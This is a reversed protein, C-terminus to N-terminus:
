GDHLEAGLTKMVKVAPSNLRNIKEESDLSILRGGVSICSTSIVEGDKSIALNATGGGIDCSLITKNLDASRAMAGSGMAALLSEFNPGATAAVFKGADNSLAQAIQPANSKKATEGTVIVAGTKIDSPQIGAKKSEKKLFTTLTDIDISNGNLLPTSIIEGEYVIKRDQIVFKQTPSHEDKVLVLKSFALHSTSSGIDIGVSLLEVRKIEM